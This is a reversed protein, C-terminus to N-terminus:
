EVLDAVADATPPVKTRRLLSHQCLEKVSGFGRGSRNDSSYGLKRLVGVIGTRQAACQQRSPSWSAAHAACYNATRTRDRLCEMDVGRPRMKASRREKALM